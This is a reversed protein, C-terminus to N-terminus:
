ASDIADGFLEPQAPTDDPDHFNALGVGVLRYLTTAPLDVQGPLALAIAALEAESRPPADPTRSRTLIRFERTKLKLM